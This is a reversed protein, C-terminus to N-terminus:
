SVQVKTVLLHCVQSQFAPQRAGSEMSKAVTSEQGSQPEATGWGAGRQERQEKSGLRSGEVHGVTGGGVGWWM